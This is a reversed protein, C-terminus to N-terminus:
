EGPTASECSSCGGHAHAHGDGHAYDNDTGDLAQHGEPPLAELGAARLLRTDDDADPNPTTLLREGFFISNAGAYLAMLQAEDTLETRGASLRVRTTPMMIRATAIMRILELGPVPPLNELPTGAVRVLANIPVSEPHPELSSLEVLM